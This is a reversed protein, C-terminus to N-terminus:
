ASIKLTRRVALVFVNKAEDTAGADDGELTDTYRNFAELVRNPGLIQLTGELDQLENFMPKVAEMNRDMAEGLDALEEADSPHQGSVGHRIAQSRAMLATGDARHHSYRGALALIRTFSDYRRERVWRAHDRNSQWIALAFGAVATLLAAGFIYLIALLTPDTSSAQEATNAMIM